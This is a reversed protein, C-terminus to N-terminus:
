SEKRLNEFPEAIITRLRHSLEDPTIEAFEEPQIPTHIHMHVRGPYVRQMRYQSQKPIIKNAGWITIPQIVVSAKKALIFGGKKFPLMTGDAHGRTGEPFVVVSKGNQIQGAAHFLSQLSKKKDGREVPIYGAGRMAWGFIPIKFLSAKAMWRFQLDLVSFFVIIDFMSQHNSIIIMPGDRYLKDKDRVHIKIGAVRALVKGWSWGIRHILNQAGFLGLLNLPPGYILCVVVFACWM